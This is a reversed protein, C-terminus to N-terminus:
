DPQSTQRARQQKIQMVQDVLGDATKTFQRRQEATDATDAKLRYVLNLYAMADDYDPRLAIAKKLFDVGEDITADNEQAFQARLDAPLPAAPPLGQTHASNYARRLEGNARYALTWDIVGIWYYPEPDDPKIAIHKQHYTKSEQFGELNLPPTGAIQFLLAGAGDMAILNQPDLVLADKFETIARQGRQKNEESPAGPIYQSALVTALYLRANLLNPDLNEAHEFLQAAEESQGNKFATVGQNLLDRAQMQQPTEPAQTQLAFGRGVCLAATFCVVRLFSRLLSSVRVRLTPM